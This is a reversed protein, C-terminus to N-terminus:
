GDLLGSGGIQGPQHTHGNWPTHGLVKAMPLCQMEEMGIIFVPHMHFTGPELQGM